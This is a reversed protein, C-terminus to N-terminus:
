LYRTMLNQAPRPLATWDRIEYRNADADRIVFRTAGLKRINKRSDRVDFTRPGRDTQVDWHEIGLKEEIEFIDVIRPMFYAKDLEEATIRASDGDMKRSDTVIGLIAGAPGFLNVMRRPDTLPFATAVRKVAIEEGDIEARLNSNEDRRVRVQQPELMRPTSTNQVKPSM